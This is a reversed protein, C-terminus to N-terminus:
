SPKAGVKRLSNSSDRKIRKQISGGGVREVKKVVQVRESVPRSNISEDVIALVLRSGDISIGEFEKIAKTAEGKKMVVNGTGLHEGNEDYHVVLSNISFSSFLEELDERTVTPALNSVNVRVKKSADMISNAGRPASSVGTENNAFKDHSWKGTSLNYINNNYVKSFQNSQRREKSVRGRTEGGGVRQGSEVRKNTGVTIADSKFSREQGRGKVVPQ